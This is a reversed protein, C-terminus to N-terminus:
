ERCKDCEPDDRLCRIECRTDLYDLLWRAAASCGPYVVDRACQPGMADLEDALKTQVEPSYNHLTPTAVIAPKVQVPACASLFLVGGLFATKTTKNM